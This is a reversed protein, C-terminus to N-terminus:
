VRSVFIIPAEMESVVIRGFGLRQTPALLRRRAAAAAFPEHQRRLEALQGQLDKCMLLGQLNKCM